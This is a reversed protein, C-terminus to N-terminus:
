PVTEAYYTLYHDPSFISISQDPHSCSMWYPGALKMFNKYDKADNGTEGILFLKREVMGIVAEKFEPPYCQPNHVQFSDGLYSVIRTLFIEGPEYDPVSRVTSIVQNTFLENFKTTKSSSLKEQYLGLRSAKIILCFQQLHGSYNDPLANNSLAFKAFHDLVTKEDNRKLPFDCLIWNYFLWENDYGKGGFLPYLENWCKNFAPFMNDELCALGYFLLHYYLQHFVKFGPPGLVDETLLNYFQKFNGCEELSLKSVTIGKPLIDKWNDM